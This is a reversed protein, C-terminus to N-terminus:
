STVERDVAITDPRPGQVPAPSPATVEESAGLLLAGQTALALVRAWLRGLVGVQGVVIALVVGGGTQRGVSAHLTLAIWGIALALVLNFVVLCLFEPARRAAGRLAVGWAAAASRSANAVVHIRAMDALGVIVAVLLAFVVPFTWAVINGPGGALAIGWIVLVVGGAVGAILMELLTLRFMPGAYRGSAALFPETEGAGTLAHWVRSAVGGSLAVSVVAYVCGLLVALLVITGVTGAGGARAATDILVDPTLGTRLQGALSSNAMSTMITLFIVLTLAAALVALLGYIWALAVLPGKTVAARIGRAIWIFPNTM